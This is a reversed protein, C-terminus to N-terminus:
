SCAGRCTALLSCFGYTGWGVQWDAGLNRMLKYASIILVLEQAVGQNLMFGALFFFFIMCKFIPISVMM